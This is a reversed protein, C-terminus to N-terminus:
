NQVKYKLAAPLVRSIRLLKMSLQGGIRSQKML